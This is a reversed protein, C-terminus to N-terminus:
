AIVPDILGTGGLMAMAVPNTLRAAGYKDVSFGTILGNSYSYGNWSENTLLTGKAETGVMMRYLMTAEAYAAQIIGQPIDASAWGAKYTVKVAGFEGNLESALRTPPRLWRVPWIGNLMVLNASLSYGGYVDQLDFDEGLTLETDTGFAGSADGYNGGDDVWVQMSTKITPRFRLKLIRGVVGDYYETRASTDQIVPSSLINQIVSEVGCLIADITTDWTSVTIGLRTKFDTRSTWAPTPM